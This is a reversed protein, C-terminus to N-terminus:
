HVKYRNIQNDKQYLFYRIPIAKAKCYEIDEKVAFMSKAYAETYKHPFREIKEIESLIVELYSKESIEVENRIRDILDIKRRTYELSM